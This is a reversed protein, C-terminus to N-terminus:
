GLRLVWSWRYPERAGVCHTKGLLEISCIDGVSSELYASHFDTVSTEDNDVFGPPHGGFRVNRSASEFVLSHRSRSAFTRLMMSAVTPGYAAMWHHHVSLLLTVDLMPVESVNDPTVEAIMFGCRPVARHREMAAKILKPSSDVGLSWLGRRAFHATIDGLNCGVDILSRAGHPIASEVLALREDLFPALKDQYFGALPVDREAYEGTAPAADRATEGDPVTPDGSVDSVM